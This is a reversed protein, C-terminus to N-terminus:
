PQPQLTGLSRSHEEATLDAARGRPRRSLRLTSQLEVTSVLELCAVCTVLEHEKGSKKRSGAIGDM